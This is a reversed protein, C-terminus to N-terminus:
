RSNSPLASQIPSKVVPVPPRRGHDVGIVAIRRRRGIASMAGVDRADQRALCEADCTGRADMGKADQRAGTGRAGVVGGSDAGDLPDRRVSTFGATTLM